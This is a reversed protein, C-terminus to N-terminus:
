RTGLREALERVDPDADGSALEVLQESPLCELAAAAQVAHYRLRPDANKAAELLAPCASADGRAALADASGVAAEGGGHLADSLATLAAPSAHTALGQAAAFGRAGEEGLLAALAAVGDDRGFRGLLEIAAPGARGESVRALVVPYSQEANTLLWEAAREKERADPGAGTPIELLAIRSDVESEAV